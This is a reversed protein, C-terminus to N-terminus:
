GETVRPFAADTLASQPIVWQHASPAFIFVGMLVDHYIRQHLNVSYHLTKPQTSTCGTTM